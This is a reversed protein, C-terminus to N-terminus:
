RYYIHDSNLIPFLAAKTLITVDALHGHFHDSGPLNGLDMDVNIRHKGPQLLQLSCCSFSRGGNGHVIQIQCIDETVADILLKRDKRLIRLCERLIDEATIEHIQHLDEPDPM